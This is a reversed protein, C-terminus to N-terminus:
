NTKSPWLEACISRYGKATTSLIECNHRCFQGIEIFILRHTTLKRDPQGNRTKRSAKRM